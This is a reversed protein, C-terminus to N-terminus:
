QAPHPPTKDVCLNNRCEQNVTCNAQGCTWHPTNNSSSSTNTHCGYVNGCQQYNQCYGMCQAASFHNAPCLASCTKADAGLMQCAQYCTSQNQCADLCTPTSAKSNILTNGLLIVVGTLLILFAVITFIVIRVYRLQNSSPNKKTQKPMNM